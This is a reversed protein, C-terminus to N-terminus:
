LITIRNIAIGFQRKNQSLARQKKTSFLVRLLGDNKLLSKQVKIKLIWSKSMKTVTYLLEAGNVQLVLDEWSPLAFETIYINIEYDKKVVWFDIFSAKNLSAWRTVESSDQDFERDSWQDGIMSQNMSFKVENQLTKNFASLHKQQYNKEIQADSLTVAGTISKIKSATQEKAWTLLAMDYSNISELHKIAADSLTNTQQRSKNLVPIAGLPPHAIQYCLLGLCRPLDELVGVWFCRELYALALKFKEDLQPRNQQIKKERRFKGFTDENLNLAESHYAVNSGLQLFKTMRNSVLNKSEPNFIFDEFSWNEGVVKAHLKTKSDNCVHKYSSYAMDVPARLITLNRTKRYALQEGFANFHGRFFNFKKCLEPSIKGVEWLLQPQFIESEDFLRDFLSTFTTGGSKPIHAFYWPYSSFTQDEKIM